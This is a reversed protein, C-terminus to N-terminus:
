YHARVSLDATAPLLSKARRHLREAERNDGLSAYYAGLSQLVVAQREDQGSLQGLALAESRALFDRVSLREDVGWANFIMHSM